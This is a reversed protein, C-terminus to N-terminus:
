GAQPQPRHREWWAAIPGLAPHALNLALRREVRPLLARYHPKGGPGALRTFVALIRMARQAGLIAIARMAQERDLEPRVALFADALRTVLDAPLEVRVDQVLSVLDYLAPGAFADQFDIVALQGDELVMLNRAHLDRHVFVGPGACAEPLLAGWACRFEARAEPSATPTVQDLVLELQDLLTAPDLPPLFDPPPRQFALLLALAREYLQGRRAPDAAAADLHRDGLDELLLLRAKPDAALVAPVRIGEGALWDRVALWREIAVAGSDVLIARRGQAAVLREFRRVSADGPLPRRAAGAWGAGALFAEIVTARDDM